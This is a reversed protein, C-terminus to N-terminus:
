GYERKVGTLHIFKIFTLVFKLSKVKVNVAEKCQASLNGFKRKTLGNVTSHTTSVKSIDKKLRGNNANIYAKGKATREKLVRM